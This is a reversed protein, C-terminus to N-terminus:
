RCIGFQSQCKNKALCFDDTTGCYSYQSCCSNNCMYHGSSSAGCSGDPSVNYSQGFGYQCRKACHDATSGCYGYQSCCMGSGCSYKGKSTPGCTGDPSLTASPTATVTRSRLTSATGGPVSSSSVACNGFGSQCGVGCFDASTGYYRFKSCCANLPCKAQSASTLGCEANPDVDPQPPTG